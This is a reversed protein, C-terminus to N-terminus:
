DNDWDWHEEVYDEADFPVTCDLSRDDTATDYESVLMNPRFLLDHGAIIRFGLGALEKDGLDVTGKEMVIATSEPFMKCVSDLIMQQWPRLSQHFVAKHILVLGTIVDDFHFDKRLEAFDEAPEITASYVHEWGSSDSDCVDLVSHGEHEIRTIDLYDVALRGAVVEEYEYDDDDTDGEVPCVVSVVHSRIYDKPEFPKPHYTSQTDFRM